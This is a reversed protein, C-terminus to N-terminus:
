ASGAPDGLAPSTRWCSAAPVTSGDPNAGHGSGGGRIGGGARGTGNTAQRGGNEDPTRECKGRDGIRQEVDRERDPVDAVVESRAVPRGLFLERHDDHDAHDTQECGEPMPLHSLSSLAGRPATTSPTNDIKDSGTNKEPAGALKPAIAATRAPNARPPEGVLPAGCPKPIAPMTIATSIMTATNAPFMEPIM